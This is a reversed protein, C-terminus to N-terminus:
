RCANLTLQHCKRHVCAPSIMTTVKSITVIPLRWADRNRPCKSTLCKLPINKKKKQLFGCQGDVRTSLFSEFFRVFYKFTTFNRVFLKVDTKWHKPKPTWFYSDRNKQAGLYKQNKKGWTPNFHLKFVSSIEM